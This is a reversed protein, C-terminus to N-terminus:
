RWTCVMDADPYRSDPQCNYTGDGGGFLDIIKYIGAAAMSTVFSVCVPNAACAVAGPIIYTPVGSEESLENLAEKDLTELLAKFEPEPTNNIVDRLQEPSLDSVKGSKGKLDTTASEPLQGITPKGIPPKSTTTKGSLVGGSTGPFINCEATGQTPMTPNCPICTKGTGPGTGKLCFSSGNPPKQMKATTSDTSETNENIPPLNGSSKPVLSPKDQGYASLIGMQLFINGLFLSAFLFSVIFIKSNM